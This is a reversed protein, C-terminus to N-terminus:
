TSKLLCCKKYKLGSGCPCPENRGVKPEACFPKPQDSAKQSAESDQSSTDPIRTKEKRKAGFIGGGKHRGSARMQAQQKQRNDTQKM